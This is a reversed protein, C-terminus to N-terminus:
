AGTHRKPSLHAYEIASCKRLGELLDNALIKKSIKLEFILALDADEDEAFVPRSNKEIRFGLTDAIHDWARQIDTGHRFKFVVHQM